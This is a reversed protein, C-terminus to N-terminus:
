PNGRKRFTEATKYALNLAQLKERQCKLAKLADYASSTPTPINNMNVTGTERCFEQIVQSIADVVSSDVRNLKAQKDYFEKSQILENLMLFRVDRAIAECEERSFQKTESSFKESLTKVRDSAESLDAILHNVKEQALTEKRHFVYNGLHHMKEAGIQVVSNVLNKLHKADEFPHFFFDRRFILSVQSSM